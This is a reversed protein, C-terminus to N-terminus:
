PLFKCKISGKGFSSKVEIISGNVIPIQPAVHGIDSDLIIPINLNGIADKIADKYSIEFDERIMLPRGFIIGRCHEFYGANKMKWLNCFFGPTSSEFVELFWIIGDKKYKEIYESIKDYKTGILNQIVDFCGGLCRGGFEIKKENNLNVWKVPETLEYGRYPDINVDTEIEEVGPMFPKSCKEYSNQVFEERQMLRISNELSIHWDKMGFTKYTPGYITAIDLVTTFIFGLNTVDSYGQLWKPKLKKIKEFDLEDLVECLFDGGAALIISKVEENELLEMFEKARQQKSSSRGREQMRVNPTEIVRFGKEQLKKKSNEIRLLEEEETFGCSPATIGIIDNEKIKEPYIM